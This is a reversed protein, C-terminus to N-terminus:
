DGRAALAKAALERAAQRALARIFAHRKALAEAALGDAAPDAATGLNPIPAIANAPPISPTAPHPLRVALAAVPLGTQPDASMTPGSQQQRRAM